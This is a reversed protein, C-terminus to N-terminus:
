LKVGAFSANSSLEASVKNLHESSGSVLRFQIVSFCVETTDRRFM